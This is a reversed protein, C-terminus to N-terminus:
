QNSGKSRNASVAANTLDFHSYVVIQWAELASGIRLPPFTRGPRGTPRFDPSRDPAGRQGRYWRLRPTEIPETTGSTEDRGYNRGVCGRRRARDAHDKNPSFRRPTKLAAGPSIDFPYRELVGKRVLMTVQSQQGFHLAAKGAIVVPGKYIESCYTSKCVWLCRVRLSLGIGEYM